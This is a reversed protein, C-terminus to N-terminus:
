GRRGAMWGQQWWRPALAAEDVALKGREIPEPAPPRILQDARWVSPDANEIGYGLHRVTLAWCSRYDPGVLWPTAALFDWVRTCEDPQPSFCDASMASVGPTRNKCGKIQTVHAYDGEPDVGHYAPTSISPASVEFTFWPRGDPDRLSFYRAMGNERKDWYGRAEGICHALFSGEQAFQRRTSLEQVTWDDPWSFVVPGQEIPAGSADRPIAGHWTHAAEFAEEFTRYEGLDPRAADYWDCIHRFNGQGQMLSIQRWGPIAERLPPSPCLRTRGTDFCDTRDEALAEAKTYFAPREWDRDLMEAPSVGPLGQLLPRPMQVEENIWRALAPIVKTCDRLALFGANIMVDAYLWHLVWEFVEGITDQESPPPLTETSYGKAPLLGEAVKDKLVGTSLVSPIWREILFPVMFKLDPPHNFTSRGMFPYGIIESRFVHHVYYPVLPDSAGFQDFVWKM